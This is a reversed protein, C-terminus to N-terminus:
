LGHCLPWSASPFSTQAAALAPPLYPASDAGSCTCAPGLRPSCLQPSAWQGCLTCPVLHTWCAAPVASTETAWRAAGSVGQVDVRRVDPRGRRAARRCHTAPQRRRHTAPDLVSYTGLLQVSARLFVKRICNSLELQQLPPACVWCCCRLRTAGVAARASAAVERLRKIPSSPSPGSLGYDPGGSAQIRIVDELLDHDPQHEAMDASRARTATHINTTVYPCGELTRERGVSTSLPRSAPRLMKRAQEVPASFCHHSLHNQM